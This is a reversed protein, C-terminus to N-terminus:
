SLAAILADRDTVGIRLETLGVPVGCVRSRVAPDLRLRVLGRSSGNVLWRGGWGHVGWGWVRADDVEVSRVASRPIDARFAWGMQVVVSEDSVGVRSFRPGMGLVGLLRRHWPEYRIEFRADM